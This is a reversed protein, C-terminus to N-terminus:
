RSLTSSPEARRRATKRYRDRALRLRLPSRRLADRPRSALGVRCRAVRGPPRRRRLDHRAASAVLASRSRDGNSHPRHDRVDGIGVDPGHRAGSTRPRAGRRAPRHRRHGAFAVSDRRDYGGGCDLRRASACARGTRSRLPCGRSCPDRVRGRHRGCSRRAGVLVARLTSAVGTRGHVRARVRVRRARDAHRRRDLRSQSRPRLLVRHRAGHRRRGRDRLRARRRPGLGPRTSGGHSSASGPPKAPPLPSIPAPRPPAPQPPADVRTPPPVPPPAAHVPMPPPAQRQAAQPEEPVVLARVADLEARLKAFGRAYM